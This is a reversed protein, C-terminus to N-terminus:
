HTKCSTIYFSIQHKMLNPFHLLHEKVKSSKMTELQSVHLTFRRYFSKSSRSQASMAEHFMSSAINAKPLIQINWKGFTVQARPLASFFVTTKPMWGAEEDKQTQPNGKKGLVNILPFINRLNCIHM